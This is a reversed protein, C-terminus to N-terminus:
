GKRAVVQKVAAAIHRASMGYRDLLALYPGSETFTDRV